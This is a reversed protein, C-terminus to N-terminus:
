KLLVNCNGCSDTHNQPTYYPRMRYPPTHSIPRTIHACVIHPTHYPAHLIPAYSIPRTIHPTHYYPRM